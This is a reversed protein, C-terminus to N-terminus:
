LPLPINRMRDSDREAEPLSWLEMMPSPDGREKEKPIPDASGRETLRLIWVIITDIISSSLGRRNSTYQFFNVTPPICGTDM